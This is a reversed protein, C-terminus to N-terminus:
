PLIRMLLLLLGLNVLCGRGWVRVSLIWDLLARNRWFVGVYWISLLLLFRLIWFPLEIRLFIYRCMGRERLCLVIDACWFRDLRRYLWLQEQRGRWCFVLFLWVLRRIFSCEEWREDTVPLIRGSHNHNSWEWISWFLVIKMIRNWVCRLAPITSTYRFCSLNVSCLLKLPTAKFFLFLYGPVYVFFCRNSPPMWPVRHFWRIILLCFRWSSFFGVPNCFISHCFRLPRGCTSSVIKLSGSIRYFNMGKLVEPCEFRWVRNSRELWVAELIFKRRGSQKMKM